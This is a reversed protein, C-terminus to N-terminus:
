GWAKTIAAPVQESSATTARLITWQGSSRDPMGYLSSGDACSYNLRQGAVVESAGTLFGCNSGTTLQLMWPTADPNAPNAAAPDLPQSPRIVLARILNPLDPCAVQDGSADAFCPDRIENGVSCRWADARGSAAISATFCTGAQQGSVMVGVLRDGSEWPAYVAVETRGSLRTTTATTPSPEASRRTGRNSCGGVLALVVVVLTLSPAVAKLSMRGDHVQREAVKVCAAAQNLGFALFPRLDILRKFITPPVM